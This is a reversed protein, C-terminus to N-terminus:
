GCFQFSESVVTIGFEELEKYLAVQDFEESGVLVIGKPTIVIGLEQPLPKGANMAHIPHKKDVPMGSGKQCHSLAWSAWQLGNEIVNSLPSLNM